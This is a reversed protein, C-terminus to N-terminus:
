INTDDLPSSPNSIGSGLKSSSPSAAAVAVGTGVAVGVGPGVAVGTGVGVGVGVGEGVGPGFHALSPRSFRSSMPLSSPGPRQLRRVSVIITSLTSWFVPRAAINPIGRLM